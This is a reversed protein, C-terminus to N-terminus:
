SMTNYLRMCICIYTSVYDVIIVVEIFSRVCKKIFTYRECKIRSLTLTPQTHSTLQLRSCVTVYQGLNKQGYCCKKRMKATTALGHTVSLRFGETQWQSESRCRTGLQSWSCSVWATKTRTINKNSVWRSGSNKQKNVCICRKISPETSLWYTVISRRKIRKATSHQNLM